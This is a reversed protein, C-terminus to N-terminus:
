IYKSLLYENLRVPTLDWAVFTTLVSHGNPKVNDVIMTKPQNQKNTLLNENLVVFGM